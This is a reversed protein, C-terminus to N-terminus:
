RVAAPVPVAAILGAVALVAVTFVFRAVRKRDM